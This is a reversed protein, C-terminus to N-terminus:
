EEQEVLTTGLTQQWPTVLTFYDTKSILDIVGVALVAARVAQEAGNKESESDHEFRVERVAAHGAARAAEIEIARGANGAADLAHQWADLLAQNTIVPYDMSGFVELAIQPYPLLLGEDSEWFDGLAKTEEDTLTAARDIMAQLVAPYTEKAVPNTEKLTEGFGIRRKRPGHCAHYSEPSRSRDCSTVGM